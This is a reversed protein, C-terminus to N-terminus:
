AKGGSGLLDIWHRMKETTADKVAADIKVPEFEQRHAAIYEVTANVLTRKFETSVNFKAGGAAVLRRVTAPPLGTGGHVVLPVRLRAGNILRAIHEFRSIDIVPDATRYVGHATGIAPAFLDVGTAEVFELAQAPDCLVAQADDVRIHDEVGAVTGLEGEVAIDGHGHCYDCVERTQRINEALSQKSADIMISTFGADVCSRCYAVDTCHDLHLGLTVPASSALAHFAAAMAEAKLFQATKASVQVILPSKCAAAAEVAAEMQVLSTVNFAGVAYGGRTAELLLDRTRVIAM